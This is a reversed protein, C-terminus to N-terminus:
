RPRGGNPFKGKAVLDRLNAQNDGLFLHDPRVCIPVYCKHLVWLGVPVPGYHLEWSFRHARIMRGGGYFMGYGVRRRRDQRNADTGGIWLWCGSTPEPEVREWFTAELNTNTRPAYAGDVRREPARVYGSRLPTLVTPPPTM